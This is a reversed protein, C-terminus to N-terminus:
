IRQEAALCVVASDNRNNLDLSTSFLFPTLFSCTRKLHLRKKSFFSFKCLYKYYKDGIKSKFITRVNLIAFTRNKETKLVIYSM